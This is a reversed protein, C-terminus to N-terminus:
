RDLPPPFRPPEPPKFPIKMIEAYVEPAGHRLLDQTDQNYELLIRTAEAYPTKLESELRRKWEAALQVAPITAGRDLKWIAVEVGTTRELRQSRKWAKLLAPLANTTDVGVAALAIPIDTSSFRTDKELALILSPVARAARPGLAALARAAMVQARNLDNSDAPAFLQAALFDIVEPGADRRKAVASLLAERVSPTERRYRAVLESFVPDAKSGFSGLSWIAGSKAASSGNLALDRFTDFAANTDRGIRLVMGASMARISESSDVLGARAYPLVNTADNGMSAFIQFVTTRYTSAHTALLNTLVPFAVQAGSRIQWLSNLALARIKEDPPNQVLRALAPGANTANPGLDWVLMLAREPLSRYKPTPIMKRVFDPMHIRNWNTEYAPSHALSDKFFYRTLEPVARELGLRGLTALDNTNRFEPSRRVIEGVVKSVRRGEFLSRDGPDRLVLWLGVAVVALVVTAFLRRRQPKRKAEPPEPSDSM